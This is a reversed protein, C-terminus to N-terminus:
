MTTLWLWFPITACALLATMPILKAGITCDKGMLRPYIVPNLGCPMCAMFVASPYVSAPLPMVLKLAMCIGYVCAPIVVLRFLCFLWTKGDPLMQKVTFESLVLGVLLMSVPGVASGAASAVTTVVEPLAIGTLGFVMGVAIAVTTPNGLSKLSAKRDMLLGVGLTYCYVAIPLCFVMMDNMAAEGLVNEVLVYGFYAYNAVTISYSLVKQQYRDRSLLKGILNGALILLCLVGLSIFITIYNNQLYSVTFNRAFNLFMKGPLLLNVLLFSLLSSKQAMDKRWRGLVMGALIFIYLVALQKILAEM